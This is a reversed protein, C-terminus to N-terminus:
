ALIFIGLKEEIYNQVEKKTMGLAVSLESYLNDEAMKLYREDTAAFKKGQAIKENSILLSCSTERIIAMSAITSELLM